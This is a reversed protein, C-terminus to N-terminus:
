YYDSIMLFPTMMQKNIKRKIITFASLNLTTSMSSTTSSRPKALPEKASKAHCIEISIPTWISKRTQFRISHSTVTISPVSSLDREQTFEWTTLYIIGSKSFKKASLIIKRASFPARSGIAESTKLSSRHMIKPYPFMCDGM